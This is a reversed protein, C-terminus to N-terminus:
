NATRGGDVNFMQGTISRSEDSVLYNVLSAVDEPTVLRGTPTEGILDQEHQALTVGKIKARASQTQEFLQTKVFGPQVANVTIGTGAIELALSRVLGTVAAKSAAYIANYPAGVEASISGIHVIRGQRARIMPRMVARSIAFAGLTNVDIVRRWEEPKGILVPAIYSVGACNVCASLTGHRAVVEKVAQDCRAPDTVDMEISDAKGGAAQLSQAIAVAREADISAVVVRHGAQSLRTCIAAGIDGTGGVVLVVGADIGM